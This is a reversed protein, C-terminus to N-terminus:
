DGTFGQIMVTIASVQANLWLRLGDVMEVYSTMFGRTQPLTEMIQDAFFYPTILIAFLILVIFFGRRFGSRQMAEQKEAETLGSTDSAEARARLAANIENIDPVARLNASATVAGISAAATGARSGGEEETMQAIRKRTEGADVLGSPKETQTAQPAANGGRPLANERSAEQRLIDAVASDLPKREPQTSTDAKAERETEDAEDDESPNKTPAPTTLIKSTDRGPVVPKETQLWTHACSSCQVDRGGEPIADDAVNYQAECNPCILRM